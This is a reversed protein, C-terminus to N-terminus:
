TSTPATWCTIDSAAASTPHVVDGDTDRDRLLMAGVYVPDWLYQAETKGTLANREELM